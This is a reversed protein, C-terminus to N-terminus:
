ASLADAAIKLAILVLALGGMVDMRRKGFVAGFRHSLLVAIVSLVATTIGMSAVALAVPAGIMPLTVGVAFADISTAFALATMVRLGFDPDVSGGNDGVAARAGWLMKAGLGVLVVCAIVPGAVKVYAGVVDGLWAGLAPMLAQFGGFFLAVLVAHRVRVRSLALGRAASVAAADAAVGLSLLLVSAFTMRGNYFSGHGDLCM